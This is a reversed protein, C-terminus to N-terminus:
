CFLVTLVSKYRTKKDILIMIPLYEIKYRM